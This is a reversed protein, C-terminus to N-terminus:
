LSYNHLKGRETRGGFEGMYSDKPKTAQLIAFESQTHSESDDTEREWEKMKCVSIRYRPFMIGGWGEGRLGNAVM